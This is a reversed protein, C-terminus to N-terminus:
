TQEHLLGQGSQSPLRFGDSALLRTRYGMPRLAVPWAVCRRVGSINHDDVKLMVVRHHDARPGMERSHRPVKRGAELWGATRVMGPAAVQATEAAPALHDSLGCVSLEAISVEAFRVLLRKRLLIRRM